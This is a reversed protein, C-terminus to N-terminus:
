YWCQPDPKFCDGTMAFSIAPCGRCEFKLPCDVCKDFSSINRFKNLLTSESFIELLSNNNINGIKIPLRSCPLVEGDPMISITNRGVGCGSIIKQKSNPHFFGEEFLLLKWLNDKFGMNKKNRFSLFNFLNKMFTKLEFASILESKLNTNLPVLRSYTLRTDSYKKLIQKYEKFNSKMLTFMLHLRINYKRFYEILDTSINNNNINRIKNHTDNLGDISIQYYGIKSLKLTKFLNMQPTIPNGLINVEFGKNICTTILPFIKKYLLPNGGTFNIVLKEYYRTFSDYIDDVLKKNQEFSTEIDSISYYNSKLYCHNCSYECIKTLHWQFTFSKNNTYEFLSHLM